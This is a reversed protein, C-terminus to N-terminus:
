FYGVLPKKYTQRNDIKITANDQNQSDKAIKSKISIITDCKRDNSRNKNFSNERNVKPTKPSARGISSNFNVSTDCSDDIILTKSNITNSIVSNECTKKVSENIFDIPYEPGDYNAVHSPTVFHYDYRFRTCFTSDHGRKSCNSCYLQSSNKM